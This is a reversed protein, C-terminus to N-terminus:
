LGFCIVAIIVFILVWWFERLFAMAGVLIKTTLRWFFSREDSSVYGIESRLRGSGAALPRGLISIDGNEPKLLDAITRLLTTKGAGNSGSIGLIEGSEVSFSIKDLACIKGAAGFPLLLRKYLPREITFYKTVDRIEIVVAM